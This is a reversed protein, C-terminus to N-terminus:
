TQHHLCSTISSISRPSGWSRVMSSPCPVWGLAKPVHDQREGSSVLAVPEAQHQVVTLRALLLVHSFIEILPRSRENPALIGSRNIEARVMFTMSKDIGDINIAKIDEWATTRLSRLGPSVETVAIAAEVHEAAHLTM